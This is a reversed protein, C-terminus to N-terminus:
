PFLCFYIFVVNKGGDDAMDLDFESSSHFPDGSCCCLFTVDGCFVGLSLNKVLLCNTPLRFSDSLLILRKRVNHKKAAARPPNRLIQM